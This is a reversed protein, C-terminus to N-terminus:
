RFGSFRSDFSSSSPIPQAGNMLSGNSATTTPAPQQGTRTTDIQRIAGPAAQQTDAAQDKKDSGRLGITRSVKAMVGEKKPAEATTEDTAAAAPKPRPTTIRSFLSGNNKAPQADPQAAAVQTSPEAKPAPRFFNEMKQAFTPEDPKVGDQKQPPTRPLPV